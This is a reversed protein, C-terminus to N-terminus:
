HCEEQDRRCERNAIQDIAVVALGVTLPPYRRLMDVLHQQIEKRGMGSDRWVRVDKVIEALVAEFQREAAAEEKHAHAEIAQEIWRDIAYEPVYRAYEYMAGDCDCAWGDDSSYVIAKCKNCILDGAHHTVGDGYSADPDRYETM